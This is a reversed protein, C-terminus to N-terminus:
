APLHPMQQQSYWVLLAQNFCHQCCFGKLNYAKCLYPKQLHQIVNCRHHLKSSFSFSVSVPHM